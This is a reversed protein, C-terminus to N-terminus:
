MSNVVSLGADGFYWNKDLTVCHLIEARAKRFFDSGRKGHHEKEGNNRNTLGHEHIM